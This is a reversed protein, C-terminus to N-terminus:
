GRPSSWTSRRSCSGPAPVAKRWGAKQGRLTARRTKQSHVGHPAPLLYYRSHDRGLSPWAPHHDVDLLPWLSEPIHWLRLVRARVEPWDQGYGRQSSPPRDKVRGGRAGGSHGGARPPAPCPRVSGAGSRGQPRGPGIQGWVRTSAGLLSREPVREVLVLRRGRSTRRETPISPIPTSASRWAGRWSDEKTMQVIRINLEGSGQVQFTETPTGDVRNEIYTKSWKDGRLARIIRQNVLIRERDRLCARRPRPTSSRGRSVQGASRTYKGSPSERKEPRGPGGPNGPQFLPM